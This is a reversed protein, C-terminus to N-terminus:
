HARIFQAMDARLPSLFRFPRALSLLLGIHGLGPYFKVEVPSGFRQLRAAMNSTNRPSVTGDDTGSALFMPPRLGNVYTIPQTDKRAKGGFM